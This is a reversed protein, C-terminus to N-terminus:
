KHCTLCDTSAKRALHCDVCWGMNLPAVQRAGDMKEVEGHCQQCRLGAAVHREHTFYVHDPVRHVRVWEIPKGDEFAQNLKQVEPKDRSVFKHCGNCRQLSPVGAVPAHEAYAHCMTCGIGNDAVHVRHSFAIPQPPPTGDFGAGCAGVGVLGALAGVLLSARV